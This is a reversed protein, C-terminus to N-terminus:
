IDGSICDEQRHRAIDRKHEIISRGNTTILSGCAMCQTRYTQKPLGRLPDDHETEVTKKKDTM